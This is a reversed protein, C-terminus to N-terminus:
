WLKIGSDRLGAIRHIRHTAEQQAYESEYAQRPSAARNSQMANVNMQMDTPSTSVQSSAPQIVSSPNLSACATPADVTQALFNDMHMWQYGASLRDASDNVAADSALPYTHQTRLMDQVSMGHLASSDDMAMEAMANPPPAEHNSPPKTNSSQSKGLLVDFLNERTLQLKKEGSMTRDGTGAM